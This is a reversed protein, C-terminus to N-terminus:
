ASPHFMRRYLRLVRDVPLKGYPFLQPRFGGASREFVVQTQTFERLGLVGHTRGFGSAKTGGFPAAAHMAPTVAENVTVMGAVIRRALAAAARTDRSWVSAGLGYGGANAAALASEPDPFGRVLVVPGFCGALAADPADDRAFLVTPPYFAGPGPRPEGGALIEAGAGAAARIRDHFRDRMAPSVMPGVDVDADTPDGLRLAKARAAMADAWPAPDGVVFLRKVAVCAQGANLFAGWCLADATSPLPADPLVVAADYGSLEALVPVGLAGLAGTVRRGNEVGGTFMGKDIGANVLARGVEAGGQVAAVLGAPFGAEDLSEQLKKGSLPALESPKWVVGNGAALAQGIAPANLFLPYNWTGIIGVVGLPIHRVRGSGLQLFRQHGPGVRGDRLAKGGHRVTWRVGDLAAIVDGAYAESRPKGIEDRLLDAWVEADRALIRWWRNLASRRDAWPTEGWATQAARSAAVAEAVRGAPTVPVRGLEEGTAPNHSVLEDLTSVAM